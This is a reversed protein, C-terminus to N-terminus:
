FLPYLCFCLSSKYFYNHPRPPIPLCSPSLIWQAVMCTWGRDDAGYFDSAVNLQRVKKNARINLTKDYHLTYVILGSLPPQKIRNNIFLYFTFYFDSRYCFFRLLLADANYFFSSLSTKQIINYVLIFLSWPLVTALRHRLALFSKIIKWFKSFLEDPQM